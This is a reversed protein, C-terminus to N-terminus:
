KLDKRRFLILGLVTFGVAVCVSSLALQWYPTEVAIYTQAEVDWDNHGQQMIEWLQGGPSVNNYARLVSRLPERIYNPNPVTPIDQTDDYVNGQSDVFSPAMMGSEDDLTTYTVEKIDAMTDPSELMDNITQSGFMLGLAILACLVLAYRGTMLTAMFTAIAALAAITLLLLGGRTLVGPLDEFGVGIGGILVVTIHIAAYFLEVLWVILLNSLYVSGRSRGVTIKNRITGDHYDTNIFLGCVIPLLIFLMASFGLTINDLSIDFGQSIERQISYVNVGAFGAMFIAGLWLRKTHLMAFFDASLLKMM